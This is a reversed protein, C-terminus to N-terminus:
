DVNSIVVIGEGFAQKRPKRSVLFVRPRGRLRGVVESELSAGRREGRVGTQPNELSEEWSRKNERGTKRGQHYCGNEM